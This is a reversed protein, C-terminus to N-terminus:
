VRRQNLRFRILDIIFLSRSNYYKELNTKNPISNEKKKGEMEIPTTNAHRVKDNLMDRVRGAQHRFRHLELQLQVCREHWDISLHGSAAHAHAPAPATAPAAAHHPHHHYWASTSPGGGGFALELDLPAAGHTRSRCFCVCACM